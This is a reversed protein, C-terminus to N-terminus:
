RVGGTSSALPEKPSSTTIRVGLTAAIATASRISRAEGASRVTGTRPVTPTACPECAFGPWVWVGFFAGSALSASGNGSAAFSAARRLSACVRRNNWSASGSATVRAASKLATFRSRFGLLVLAKGATSATLPWSPATGATGSWTFRCVRPFMLSCDSVHANAGSKMSNTLGSAFRVTNSPCFM